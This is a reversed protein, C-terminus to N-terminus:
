LSPGPSGRCPRTPGSGGGRQIGAIVADAARRGRCAPASLAPPATRASRAPALDSIPIRSFDGKLWGPVATTPVVTSGYGEFALSAMLRM